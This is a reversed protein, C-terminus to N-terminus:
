PDTCALEGSLKVDDGSFRSTLVHDLGGARARKCRAERMMPGPTPSWLPLHGGAEGRVAGHRHQGPGRSPPAQRGYRVRLCASGVGEVRVRAIAASMISCDM